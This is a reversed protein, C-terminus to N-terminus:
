EGSRSRNYSLEQPTLQFGLLIQYDGARRGEALPITQSLEEVTGARSQGAPFAVTTDFEEKALVTGQADAVAVFYRYDARDEQLAPGKEAALILNLDVTVEQSGPECGGTFDALIARSAVDTLDQGAGERFRTVEDAGRVISVRPCSPTEEAAVAAAAAEDPSSSCGAALFPLSLALVMAARAKRVPTGMNTEPRIHMSRVTERM